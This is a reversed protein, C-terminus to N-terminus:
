WATLAQQRELHPERLEPHDALLQALTADAQRIAELDLPRKSM